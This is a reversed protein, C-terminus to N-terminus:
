FNHLKRNSENNILRTTYLPEHSSFRKMYALTKIFRGSRLKIHDIQKNINFLIKFGSDTVNNKM